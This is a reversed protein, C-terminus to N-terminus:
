PYDPDDGHQWSLLCAALLTNPATFLMNPKSFLSPLHQTYAFFVFPDRQSNIAMAGVPYKQDNIPQRQAASLLWLVEYM